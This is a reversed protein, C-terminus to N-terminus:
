YLRQKKAKHEEVEVIESRKQVNESLNNYARMSSLLPRYEQVVKKLHRPFNKALEAPSKPLSKNQKVYIASIDKHLEHANGTTIFKDFDNLVRSQDDRDNRYCNVIHDGLDIVVLNAERIYDDVDAFEGPVTANNYEEDTLQNNYTIMKSVLRCTQVIEENYTNKIDRAVRDYREDCLVSPFPDVDLVNKHNVDVLFSVPIRGGASEEEIEM